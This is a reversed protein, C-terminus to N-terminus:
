GIGIQDDEGTLSLRDSRPFSFLNRDHSLDSIKDVGMIQVATDGIRALVGLNIHSAEIAKGAMQAAHKHIRRQDLWEPEGNQFRSNVAQRHDSGAVAARRINDCLNLM